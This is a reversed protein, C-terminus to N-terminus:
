LFYYNLSVGFASVHEADEDTPGFGTEYYVDFGWM